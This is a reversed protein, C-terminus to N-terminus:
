ALVQADKRSRESNEGKSKLKEIETSANHLRQEVEERSAVANNYEQQTERRKEESEKRHVDDPTVTRGDVEVAEGSSLRGFEPGEEVGLERAREADFVEREVVVADGDVSVAHEESLVGAVAEALRRRGDPPVAVGALRGGEEVYGLAHSELAEETAERSVNRAERVVAAGFEAAEGANDEVVQRARRTLRAEGAPAGLVDKVAAVTEDPVGARERLYDESVTPFPVDAGEGRGDLVVADAGSSGYADHLVEDDVPLAYDAAIHGVAADTELAIRTFRPAYHGGGVGVVTTRPGDREPLSLVGGAVTRAADDREWEGPGSGVEAFVSPVNLESPGHHTAETCVGFGDPANDDFYRLLHKTASPAPTALSRPEGGYEAGGFNGTHHATLLPGTDGSHRSVFVVLEVDFSSRLDDDVGDYHLHLGDKEVMVFGDDAADYRWEREWPGCPEHRTWDAAGLLADRVTLSAEDERSVVVAIM